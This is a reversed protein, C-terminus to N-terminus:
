TDWDYNSFEYRIFSEFDEDARIKQETPQCYYGLFGIINREKSYFMMWFWHPFNRPSAVFETVDQQVFTYGNFEYTNEDLFSMNNLTFDMAEQYVEPTYVFYAFSKDRNYGINSWHDYYYNGETYEFRDIFDECPFLYKSTELESDYTSFNELGDIRYDLCSSFLIIVNLLILIFINKKM